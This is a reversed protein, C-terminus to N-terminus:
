IDEIEFFNPIKVHIKTIICTSSDEHSRTDLLKKKFRLKNTKDCIDCYFDSM